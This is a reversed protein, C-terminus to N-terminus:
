NTNIPHLHQSHLHYFKIQSTEPTDGISFDIFNGQCGVTQSVTVDPSVQTLELKYQGVFACVIKPHDVKLSPAQDYSGCIFEDNLDALTLTEACKSVGYRDKMHKIVLIESSARAGNVIM